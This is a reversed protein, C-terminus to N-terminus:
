KRLRAPLPFLLPVSSRYEDYLTGHKLKMIPEELFKLYFLYLLSIAPMMLFIAVASQLLVGLGLLIVLYGFGKPNRTLAYPGDMTLRESKKKNLTFSLAWFIWSSGAMFLFSFIIFNWPFISFSTWSFASSVVPTLYDVGAMFGFPILVAVAYAVVSHELAGLFTSRPVSNRSAAWSNQNGRKSIMTQPKRERGFM